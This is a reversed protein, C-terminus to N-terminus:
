KCVFHGSNGSYIIDDISNVFTQIADEIFISQNVEIRIKEITSQRPPLKPPSLQQYHQQNQQSRGFTQNSSTSPLKTPTREQAISLSPSFTEIEYTSSLQPLYEKPVAGGKQPSFYFPESTNQSSAYSFHPASPM